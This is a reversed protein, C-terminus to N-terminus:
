PNKQAPPDPKPAEAGTPRLWLDITESEERKGGELIELRDAITGRETVLYKRAREARKLQGNFAIIYGQAGPEEQLQTAFNDLREKEKSFPMDGYRDFLSSRPPDAICSPRTFSAAKECGQELGDIEVTITIDEGLAGIVGVKIWPTGQGSIIRGASASWNYTLKDTPRTGSVSLRLEIGAGCDDSSIHEITIKPCPNIPQAMKVQTPNALALLVVLGLCFYFQHSTLKIRRM